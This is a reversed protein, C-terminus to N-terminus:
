NGQFYFSRPNEGRYFSDPMGMEELSLRGGKEPVRSFFTHNGLTIYEENRLNNALKDAAKGVRGYTFVDDRLHRQYDPEGGGMTLVNEAAAMAKTWYNSNMMEKLRPKLNRPELGDYMFMKSGTGRKSRQKLVDKISNINKFSYTKDNVRNLVTEGIAELEPMSDSSLYSEAFILMALAEQDSFNDILNEVNKRQFSPRKNLEKFSKLVKPSVPEVMFGSENIEDGFKKKIFGGESASQKKAKSVRRKGRENLALLRKRGLVNALEPQIVAEGSSIAVDTFNKKIYDDDNESLPKGKSRLYRLGDKVMRVFNKEGMLDISPKNMVITAGEPNQDNRLQIATDDAIGEQDSTQSAPKNIFGSKQTKENELLENGTIVMDRDDKIIPEVRNDDLMIEEEGSGMAMNVRGGESFELGGFPDGGGGTGVGGQDDSDSSSTDYTLQSAYPDGGQPRNVQSFTSTPTDATVGRSAASASKKADARYSKKAEQEKKEMESIDTKTFCLGYEKHIEDETMGFFREHKKLDSKEEHYICLNNTGTTTVTNTNTNFNLTSRSITM